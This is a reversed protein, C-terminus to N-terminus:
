ENQKVGVDTKFIVEGEPNLKFWNQKIYEKNNKRYYKVAEAGTLKKGSETYCSFNEKFRLMQYFLYPRGTIPNCGARISDTDIYYGPWPTPPEKWRIENVVKPAEEIPKKINRSCTFRRMNKEKVGSKDAQQCFYAALSSYEGTDYLARCEPPRAKNSAKVTEKWLNSIKRQSIGKPIVIHHHLAGREGFATTKVWRFEEECGNELFAEKLKKCFVSLQYKAKKINDPRNEKEYHCTIFWDDPSFNENLIATLKRTALYYNYEEVDAPTGLGSKANKRTIDDGFRTPYTFSVLVSQGARIIKRHYVPKKM